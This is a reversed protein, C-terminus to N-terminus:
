NVITLPNDAIQDLGDFIYHHDKTRQTSLVIEMHKDVLM